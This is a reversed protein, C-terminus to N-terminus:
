LVHTKWQPLPFLKDYAWNFGFAYVMYFLSFSVDMVFAQWLSVGLYWAIFPMLVMLLTLEFLVAHLMRALGTKETTGTYRQLGLDFFYNYILNWVTALTSSVVGVVGIDHLPMQFVVAGMPIILFLAIIEFSLAHRVRDPFSRM